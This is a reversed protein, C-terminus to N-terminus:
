HSWIWLTTGRADLGDITITGMSPGHYHLGAPLLLASADFSASVPAGDFTVEAVPRGDYLAAGLPAMDRAALAAEFGRRDLLAMHLRDRPLLGLLGGALPVRPQPGADARAQGRQESLEADSMAQLAAQASAGHLAAAALLALTAAHLASRTDNVFRRM